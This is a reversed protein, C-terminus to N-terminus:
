IPGEYFTSCQADLVWYQHPPDVWPSVLKKQAVNGAKKPTVQEADRQVKQEVFKRVDAGRETNCGATEGNSIGHQTECECAGQRRTDMDHLHQPQGSEVM